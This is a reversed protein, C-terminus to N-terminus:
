SLHAVSIPRGTFFLGSIILVILAVSAYMITHIADRLIVGTENAMFLGGCVVFTTWLQM